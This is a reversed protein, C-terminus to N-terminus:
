SAALRRNNARVRRRYMAVAKRPGHHPTGSVTAMAMAQQAEILASMKEPVLRQAEALAPAGGAAMRLLRTNIVSQSELGLRMMDFSLRFWSDYRSTM